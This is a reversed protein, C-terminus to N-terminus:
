STYGYRKLREEDDRWGGDVKVELGLHVTVGFFEELRARADTGIEKVKAGGKGIVMGKQTKREVLIEADIRIEAKRGELDRKSEDFSVVRVESCYPLEKGLMELLTERILESACFRDTRDTLFEADYLPPGKPVIGAADERSIMGGYKPAIMGPVPRGLDRIAGGVDVEPDNALLISRLAVVGPDSPGSAACCPVIAFADPLAERWARVTEVAMPPTNEYASGEGGDAEAALDAKNVMVVVPKGYRRLRDLMDDGVGLSEDFEEGEKSRGSYVDTVVVFLDASNVAGRVADMMGRQLGYAPDAIIGPTDTVALQVHDTTVVGLIAHRTTQPRRTAIALREGLLANLLTSKGMNPVGLITLLACRHAPRASGDSSDGDGEVESPSSAKSPMRGDYDLKTDLDVLLEDVPRSKDAYKKARLEFIAASPRIRGRRRGSAAGGPVASAWRPPPPVLSNAAPPLSSSALLALHLPTRM